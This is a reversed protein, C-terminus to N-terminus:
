KPIGPYTKKEKGHCGPLRKLCVQLCLMVDKGTGKANGSIQATGDRCESEVQPSLEQPLESWMQGPFFASM